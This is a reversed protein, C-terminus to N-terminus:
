RAGPSAVPLHPPGQATRVRLSDDRGGLVPTTTVGGAVAQKRHELLGFQPHREVRRLQRVWADTRDRLDTTLADLEALRAMQILDTM